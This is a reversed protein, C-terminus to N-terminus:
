NLSVSQEKGCWPCYWKQRSLPADGIAWWKQCHGCQFHSLKEVTKKGKIIPTKKIKKQNM